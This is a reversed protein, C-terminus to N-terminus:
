TIKLLLTFTEGLKVVDGVAYYVTSSWSPYYNFGSLYTVFKSSDINGAVSSSTHETICKLISGGYKVLDNKRYRTNVSHLGAYMYNEVSVTWTEATSDDNGDNNGVPVGQSLTGSTHELTCQYTYGNYRIIDGVRYRTSTSWTNRFNSGVAFIEWNVSDSNFNSSSTHSGICLYVNGGVYVMMGPDYRTASAWNGAFKRGDTMKVWGPAALTEGEPIFTQADEFVDSTHARVCVWSSGQYFVVDDKDYDVSSGSWNGQWTYRFRTIKFEAM